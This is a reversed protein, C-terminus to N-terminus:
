AHCTLMCDCDLPPPPLLSSGSAVKLFFAKGLVFPFCSSSPVKRERERERREKREVGGFGHWHQWVQGGEKERVTCFLVGIQDCQDVIM